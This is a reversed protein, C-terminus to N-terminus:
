LTSAISFGVGSAATPFPVPVTRCSASREPKEGVWEVRRSTEAHSELELDENGATRGRHIPTSRQQTSGHPNAPQCHSRCNSPKFRSVQLITYSPIRM